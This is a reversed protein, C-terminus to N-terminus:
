RSRDGAFKKLGKLLVGNTMSHMVQIGIVGLKSISRANREEDDFFVMDKYKIKSDKKLNAFHKIKKEAPFIEKYDFFDSLGLLHLLSYANRIHVTRSALALKINHDKLYKVIEPIDRYLNLLTGKADEVGVKKFPPKLEHVHFPWLTYDLDFVVMKPFKKVSPDLSNSQPSMEQPLKHEPFHDFRSQAFNQNTMHLIVLLFLYVLYIKSM